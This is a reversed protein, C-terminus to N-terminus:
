RPAAGTAPSAPIAVVGVTVRDAEETPMVILLRGDEQTIGIIRRGSGLTVALEIGAAAARCTADASDRRRKEIVALGLKETEVEDVIARRCHAEWTATAVVLGGHRRTAVTITPVGDVTTELNRRLTKDNTDVFAACGSAVACILLANLRTV